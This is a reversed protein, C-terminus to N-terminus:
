TLSLIIDTHNKYEPTNIPWAMCDWEVSDSTVCCVDGTTM